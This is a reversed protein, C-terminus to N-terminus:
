TGEPLIRPPATPPPAPPELEVPTPRRPKPPPTVSATESLQPRKDPTKPTAVDPQSQPAASLAQWSSLKWPLPTGEYYRGLAGAIVVIAILNIFLLLRM